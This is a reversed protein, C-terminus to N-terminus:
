KEKKGKFKLKLHSTQKEPLKPRKNEFFEKLTHISIKPFQFGTYEVFGQQTVTELMPKTPEEITLFVELYLYNM